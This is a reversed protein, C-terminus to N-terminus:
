FISRYNGQNMNLNKIAEAQAVREAAAAAARRDQVEVAEQRAPPLLHIPGQRRVILTTVTITAAAIIVPSFRNSRIVSDEVPIQIIIFRGTLRLM